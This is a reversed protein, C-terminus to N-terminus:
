VMTSIASHEEAAVAAQEDTVLKTIEPKSLCPWNDVPEAADRGTIWLHRQVFATPDRRLRSYPVRLPHLPPTIRSDPSV